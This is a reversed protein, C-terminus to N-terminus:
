SHHNPLDLRFNNLFNFLYSKIVLQIPFPLSFYSELIIGLNRGRFFSCEWNLIHFIYPGQPGEVHFNGTPLQSTLDQASM